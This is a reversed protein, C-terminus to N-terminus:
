RPTTSCAWRCRRRRHVAVGAVWILGSGRPGLQRLVAPLAAAALAALVLLGVTGAIIM